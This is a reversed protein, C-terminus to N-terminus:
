MVHIKLVGRPEGGTGGGILLRVAVELCLSAYHNAKSGFAYSPFSRAAM